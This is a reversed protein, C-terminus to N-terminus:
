RDQDDDVTVSVEVTDTAGDNDTVKLRVVYTGPEDYEHEPNKKTSTNGDGFSWERAVIAGDNDRSKDEFDCELDDCDVEFAAIPPENSDPVSVTVERTVNDKAGDDDTVELAVTYTGAGAYTHSPNRASSGNGDGFDWDWDQVEGDQDTSGDQFTCTLEECSMSFSAEPPANSEAVSVTVQRSAQDTAGDDDTVELTVTYTGPLLYTHEPHRDSSGSGDGFDWDWSEVQGDPDESRDQFSCFLLTCDAAFDAEPAENEPEDVRLRVELTATGDAGPASVRVRAEHEGAALGETTPTLTLTAPAVTGSLAADLWDTAGKDWSISVTLGSLTGGGNNTIEVEIPDPNSGGDIATFQVSSLALDIVAPPALVVLRVTVERPSNVAVASLVKVVAVHTGVALTGHDARIQLTAPAMSPSLVATLWGVGGQQYDVSAGLGTLSQGGANTIQIEAPDPAASGQTAELQVETHDLAIRPEPDGVAFSVQVVVQGAEPSRLIVLATYTEEPLAGTTVRLRLTTPARTDALSASLWGGPQGDSYDVEASLGTLQGAGGNAIAVTREPPDNGGEPAAFTVESRDPLIEPGPLVEVLASGSVGDVSATIRATGERHGTVGGEADVTAVAEDSSSWSVL